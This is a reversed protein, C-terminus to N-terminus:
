ILSQLKMALGMDGKIKMKGTMTAMMPNLAGSIMKEMTEESASITCKADNDEESVINAEGKGDIFIFNDGIVFKVTDGLPSAKAAQEKINSLIDSYNM